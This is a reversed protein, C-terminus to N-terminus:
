VLQTTMFTRTDGNTQLPTMQKTLTQGPRSPLDTGETRGLLDESRIGLWRIHSVNANREHRLSRSGYKYTRLIHIGYPDFDVLLHIPLSPCTSQVLNLFTRMTLDPYGRGETINADSQQWLPSRCVTM